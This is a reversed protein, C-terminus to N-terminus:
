GEISDAISIIHLPNIIHSIGEQDIVVVAKPHVAIFDPHPVQYKRGSTVELTFPRFGNHLRDRIQDTIM